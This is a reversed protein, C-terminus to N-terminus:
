LPKHFHFAVDNCKCSHSRKLDTIQLPRGLRKEFCGICIIGGQPCTSSWLHDHVIFCGPGEDECDQCMYRRSIDNSCGRPTRFRIRREQVGPRINRWYGDHKVANM